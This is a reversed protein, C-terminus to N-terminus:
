SPTELLYKDKSFNNTWGRQCILLAVINVCMLDFTFSDQCNMKIFAFSRIQIVQWHIYKNFKHLCICIHLQNTLYVLFTYMNLTQSPWHTRPVTCFDQSARWKMLNGLSIQFHSWCNISVHWCVHFYPMYLLFMRQLTRLLQLAINPIAM